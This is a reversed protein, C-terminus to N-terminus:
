LEEASTLKQTKSKIRSSLAASGSPLPAGTAAKTLLQLITVIPDQQKIETLKVEALTCDDFPSKETVRLVVKSENPVHLPGVASPDGEKVVCVIKGSKSACSNTQAYGACALLGSGTTMLGLMIAKQLRM